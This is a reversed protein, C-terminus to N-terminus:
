ARRATIRCAYKVGGSFQPDIRTIQWRAGDYELQDLTTPWEDGIRSANVWVEIAYAEGVGGEENRMTKTVAGAGPFPTETLAVDGTTPNYSQVRRLYTLEDVRFADVLTDALPRAWADQPAPM